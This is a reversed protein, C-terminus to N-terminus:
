SNETKTLYFTTFIYSSYDPKRIVEFDAMFRLFSLSTMVQWYPTLMFTCYFIIGGPIAHITNFYFLYRTKIQSIIYLESTQVFIQIHVELFLWFRLWNKSANYIMDATPLGILNNCVSKMSLHLKFTCRNNCLDNWLVACCKRM